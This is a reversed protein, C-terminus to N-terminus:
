KAPWAVPKRPMDDVPYGLKRYRANRSWHLKGLLLNRLQPPIRKRFADSFPLEDVTNEIHLDWRPYMIPGYGAIIIAREIDSRVQGTAHILTEAFLLTSGATGTFQHILSRDEYAAAIMADRDTNIKHSGAVVVTGGDEPGLDVLTTLTKVFNCHYLGGAVHSGFNIDVGAHFGYKPDPEIPGPARTNIHANIETLRAECGMIEEAMAVLRPNCAYDLMRDDYEYFNATFAHHPSDIEFFAGRVTPKAVGPNAAKAAHLDRRLNKMAEILGACEDRTLTDPVVVYGHLDFHYRQAATLAPFPKEFTPAPTTM